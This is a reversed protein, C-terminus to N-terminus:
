YEFLEDFRTRYFDMPADFKYLAGSLSYTTNKPVLKEVSIFDLFNGTCYMKLDDFEWKKIFVYSLNSLRGEPLSLEGASHVDPWEKKEIFYTEIMNGVCAADEVEAFGVVATRMDENLRLTFANNTNSHITYYKRRTQATPMQVRPRLPPVVTTM